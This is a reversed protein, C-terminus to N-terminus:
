KSVSITSEIEQKPYFLYNLLKQQRRFEEFKPHSDVLNFLNDFILINPYTKNDKFFVQLSRLFIPSQLANVNVQLSSSPRDDGFVINTLISYQIHNDLMTTYIHDIISSTNLTVRPELIIQKYNLLMEINLMAKYYNENVPSSDYTYVHLM